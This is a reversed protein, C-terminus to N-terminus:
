LLIQIFAMQNLSGLTILLASFSTICLGAWESMELETAMCCISGCISMVAYPSHVCIMYAHINYILLITKAEKAVDFREEALAAGNLLTQRPIEGAVVGYRVSCESAPTIVETEWV